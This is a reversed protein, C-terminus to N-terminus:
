WVSFTGSTGTSIWILGTKMGEGLGIEEFYANTNDEKKHTPKGLPRKEETNGVLIKYASRKGGKHVL